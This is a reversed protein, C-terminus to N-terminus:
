FEIGQACCATADQIICANYNEGTAEDSFRAYIGKMKVTKGIYMDPYTVM